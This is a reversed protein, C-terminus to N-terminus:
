QVPEPLQLPQPAANEAPAEQAKEKEKDDDDDHHWFWLWPWWNFFSGGFLGGGFFSSRPQVVPGPATARTTNQGTASSAGAVGAAGTGATGANQRVAPNILPLDRSPDGSPKAAQSPQAPKPQPAAQLPKSAPRPVPRSIPAARFSRGSSFRAAEALLPSGAFALVLTLACIKKLLM